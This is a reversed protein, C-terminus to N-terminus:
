RAYKGNYADIAETLSEEDNMSGTGLYAAGADALRDALERLEKWQALTVAIM